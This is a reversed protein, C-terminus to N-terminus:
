LEDFLKARANPTLGFVMRSIQFPRVHLWMVPGTVLAIISTYARCVYNQMGNTGLIYLDSTEDEASHEVIGLDIGHDTSPVASLHKKVNATFLM